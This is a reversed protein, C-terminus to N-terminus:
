ITVPLFPYSGSDVQVVNIQVKEKECVIKNQVGSGRGDRGRCRYLRVGGRAGDLVRLLQVAERQKLKVLDSSGNQEPYFERIRSEIRM